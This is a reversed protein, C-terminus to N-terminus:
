NLPNLYPCYFAEGEEQVRLGQDQDRPRLDGEEEGRDQDAHQAAEGPLGPQRPDPDRDGGGGQSAGGGPGRIGQM